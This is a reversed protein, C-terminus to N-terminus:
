CCQLYVGISYLVGCDKSMHKEQAVLAICMMPNKEDIVPLQTISQSTNSIFDTEYGSAAILDLAKLTEYSSAFPSVCANFYFVRPFFPDEMERYTTAQQRHGASQSPARQLKSELRKPCTSACTQDHKQCVSATQGQAGEGLCPTAQDM